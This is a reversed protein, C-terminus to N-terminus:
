WTLRVGVNAQWPTKVEGSTTTEFTGYVKLNDRIAYAGGLEFEFWDDGLDQAYHRTHGKYAMAVSTEGEWDKLYSAGIHVNGKEFSKGLNIGVRGVATKMSDQAVQAGASTTYDVDTLYGYTFEVQPEVYFKSAVDFRHGAEVSLSLGNGYYKGKGVGGNAEFENNLRSYKGIVDVYGGTEGLYSGYLAFGYQYNDGSGHNFTSEGNTYTFAGGLIWENATGIRHDYGFQFTTYENELSQTGYESEGAMVRAWLGNNDDGRRVDGLRKFLDNNEARWAMMAVSAMESIGVNFQNADESVSIINGYSDTQAELDGIITGAEARVEKSLDGEKITLTDAVKQMGAMLNDPDFTDTVESPVEVSLSGKNMGVQAKGPELDDVQFIVNSDQTVTGIVLGKGFVKLQGNETTLTGVKAVSTESEFDFFGLGKDTEPSVLLNLNEVEFLKGTDKANSTTLTDAKFEGSGLNSFHGQVEVEGSVTMTGQNSLHGTHGPKNTKLTKAAFSAGESNGLTQVIVAGSAQITGLNTVTGDSTMDVAKITGTAFNQIGQTKLATLAEAESKAILGHNQIGGEVSFSGNEAYIQGDKSNYLVNTRIVQDTGVLKLQGLNTVGNGAVLHLGASIDGCVTFTGRNTILGADPGVVEGNVTLTGSNSLGQTATLKNTTVSGGAENIFDKVLIEEIGSGDTGSITGANTVSANIAILSKSITMAGRNVLEKGISLEAGDGTLTLTGKNELENVSLRTATLTGGVNNTLKANEGEFSTLSMQASNTVSGGNQVRLTDVTVTGGTRNEMTKEVIVTSSNLTAANILSGLTHLTSVSVEGNGTNQLSKVTLTGSGEIKGDGSIQWGAKSADVQSGEGAIISGGSVIVTQTDVVQPDAGVFKLTGSVQSLQSQTSIDGSITLSGKNQIVGDIATNKMDGTLVATGTNYMYSSDKATVDSGTFTGGNEFRSTTVAGTSTMTGGTQITLKGDGAFTGVTLNGTSSITLDGSTVVDKGAHDLSNNIVSTSGLDVTEALLNSSYATLAFVVALAVRSKTFHNRM